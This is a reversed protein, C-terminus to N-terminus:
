APVGITLMAVLMAAVEEMRQPPPPDGWPLLLKRNAIFDICCRGFARQRMKWSEDSLGAAHHRLAGYIRHTVPATSASEQWLAGEVDYHLLAYLFRGYAALEHRDESLLLPELIALVLLHTSATEPTAGREDLFAQRLRDVHPRRYELVARILGDRDGFHYQAAFKNRHGAAESIDRLSAAAIGQEGFVREAELILRRKADPLDPAAAPTANM